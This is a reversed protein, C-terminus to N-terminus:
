TEVPRAEQRLFSPKIQCRQPGLCGSSIWCSDIILKGDNQYKQAVRFIIHNLPSILWSSSKNRPQPLAHETASSTCTCENLNIQIEATQISVWSESSNIEWGPFTSLNDLFVFLCFFFLGRCTIHPIQDIYHTPFFSGIFKWDCTKNVYGRKKVYPLGSPLCQLLSWHCSLPFNSRATHKPRHTHTHKHGWGFWARWRPEAYWGFFGVCNGM